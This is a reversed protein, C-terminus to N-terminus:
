VGGGGGGGAAPEVYRLRSGAADAGSAMEGSGPATELRLMEDILWTTTAASVQIGANQDDMQAAVDVEGLLDVSFLTVRPALERRALLRFRLTALGNAHRTRAHYARLEKKWMCRWESRGGDALRTSAREGGLEEETDLIAGALAAPPRLLPFLGASQLRQRLEDDEGGWGWFNNPFGNVRTFQERSVTTIGGIYAENAAAYRPWAGAIHLPRPAPARAYWPGLPPQPLLDVDHFCFSTFFLPPAEAAAAVPWYQARAAGEATAIAFGANLAKGRNFKLGDASQEVVLIHWDRVGAATLFSPMHAVFRALQAARNQLPQSRYPVIIALSIGGGGGGGGGAAASGAATASSAGLEARARKSGAAPAAPAPPAAAAAVAALAARLTEPPALLAPAGAAAADFAEIAVGGGGDADAAAAAAAAAEAAALALRAVVSPAPAGALPAPLSARFGGLTARLSSLFADLRCPLHGDAPPAGALLARAAAGGAAAAAAAGGAGGGGDLALLLLRNDALGVKAARPPASSSFGAFDAPALVLVGSTYQAILALPPAAPPAAAATAAAAASSGLLKCLADTAGGLLLVSSPTLAARRSRLWPWGPWAASAPQAAAGGASAAPLEGLAELRPATCAASAHPPPLPLPLAFM